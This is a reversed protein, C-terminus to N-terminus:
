ATAPSRRRSRASPSPTARASRRPPTRPSRSPPRAAPPSCTAGPRRRRHAAARDAPARGRADGVLVGGTLRDGDLVLRRYVGRRTDSLVIEDHGAPAAAASRAARTSTSARSRSRRRRSRVTSPAPTARSRRAPSGRRSPSRRGCGTSSAATSPASASRGCAPRAPVCRTTSSSAATARSPGRRARADDRRARRRRRRGARVRLERGDDLVVRDAEIRAASHGTVCEIGQRELDRRLIAAAGADLQMSMLHGALEVVTVVVGRAHLGAAAELGLLGGGVVVARTGSPTAALADADRWTRFVDVHPLDAGPIPPVFARSGTAIVLADYPHGGGSEDISAARTSTWRTPAVAAACTSATSPTGRCRACSSSAPGPAHAGAAQVAPRPQLGPGPEEGLMVIKWQEAPRRRLAEEVVALGPWARHRRRRAAQAQGARPARGARRPPARAGPARRRGQARAARVDPRRGLDDARQAHRRRRRRADRGLSVPRLRRRAAAHRRLQRRLAREGRRSVIARRGRRRRPRGRGRRASAGVADARRRVALLAPSHGTRTMTHWQDAVRGTTLLIPFDPDPTEAPDVHPTPAFRARGDPTPFRNDAYLRM